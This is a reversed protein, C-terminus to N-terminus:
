NARKQRTLDGEPLEPEKEMIPEWDFRDVLANLLKSTVFLSLREADTV